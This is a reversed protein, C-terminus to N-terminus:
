KQLDDAATQLERRIDTNTTTVTAASNDSPIDIENRTVTQMNATTSDNMEDLETQIPLLSDPISYLEVDSPQTHLETSLYKACANQM